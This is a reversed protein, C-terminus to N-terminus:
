FLIGFPLEGLLLLVVVIYIIGWISVQWFPKRFEEYSVNGYAIYQYCSHDHIFIIAPIALPVLIAGSSIGVLVSPIHLVAFFAVLSFLHLFFKKKNIEGIDFQTLDPLPEKIRNGLEKWSDRSKRARSAWYSVLMASEWLGELVRAQKQKESFKAYWWALYDRFVVEEVLVMCLLLLPTLISFWVIIKGGLVDAINESLSFFLIIVCVTTAFEIPRVTQAMIKSEPAFPSAVSIRRVLTIFLISFAAIQGIWQSQSTPFNLVATALLAALAIEFGVVSESDTKEFLQDALDRETQRSM